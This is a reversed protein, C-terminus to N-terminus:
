IEEIIPMLLVLRDTLEEISKQLVVYEDQVSALNQSQIGELQRCICQEFGDFQTQLVRMEDKILKDVWPKVGGEMLRVKTEIM